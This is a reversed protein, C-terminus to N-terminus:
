QSPMKKASWTSNMGGKCDNASLELSGSLSGNAGFKGTIRLTLDGEAFHESKWVFAGNNIKALYPTSSVSDTGGLATRAVSSGPSGCPTILPLSWELSLEKVADGTVKVSIKKDQSTAGAWTGDYKQSASVMVSSTIMIAWFFIVIAKM